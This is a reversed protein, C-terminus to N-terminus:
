CGIDTKLANLQWIRQTVRETIGVECALFILVLPGVRLLIKRGKLLTRIRSQEIERKKLRVLIFFHHALHNALKPSSLIGLRDGILSGGIAGFLNGEYGTWWPTM